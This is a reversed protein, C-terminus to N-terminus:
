DDTDYAERRAELAAYFEHPTARWFDRPPWRLLGCAIGLLRRYPVETM